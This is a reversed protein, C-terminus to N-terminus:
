PPHIEGREIVHVTDLLHAVHVQNSEALLITLGEGRVRGLVEALRRALAPALGEFPEDLLLLRSGAMLARALAVLKGQGGSLHAAQRGALAQVEPLLGYIWDLRAEWHAMDTAWVPLLINEQTSFMPVLRRDEPMYGLGLRARRHAPVAGLDEGGCHVHGSHLPLLGMISRLLTTKGAGNRGIVGCLTGAPVTLEVQRLVTAHGIDVRLREVKLM